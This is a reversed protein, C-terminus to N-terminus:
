RVSTGLRNGIDFRLRVKTQWFQPAAELRQGISRAAKTSLQQSIITRVLIPFHNSETRLTCPGIRRIRAATSQRSARDDSRCYRLAM